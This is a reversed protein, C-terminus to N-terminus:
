GKGGIEAHKAIDIGVANEEVARWQATMGRVALEIEAADGGHWLDVDDVDVSACATPKLRLPPLLRHEHVGTTMAPVPPPESPGISSATVFSAAAPVSTTRAERTLLSRATRSSSNAFVRCPPRQCDSRAGAASDGTM